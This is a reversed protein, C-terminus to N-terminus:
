ENISVYQILIRIKVLGNEANTDELAIGLIMGSKTAKMAVGTESSSTILDGKNITGNESSYLVEAIGSKAVTHTKKIHKGELDIVTVDIEKYVGILLDNYSSNSLKLPKNKSCKGVDDIIIVNGLICDSCEVISSINNSSTSQSYIPTIYLIFILCILVIKKM